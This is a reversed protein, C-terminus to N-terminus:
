ESQKPQPQAPSHGRSGEKVETTGDVDEGRSGNEERIFRRDEADLMRSLGLATHDEPVPWLFCGHRLYHEIQRVSQEAKRVVAEQTNFANHPTLIVEPRRALEGLARGAPAGRRLAVGLDPEHEFVDLAVGGLRGAALAALLDAAPAHEGRAVNVFLAGPRTQQWRAPNFYGHNLPTLSMCCVIVDAQALGHEVDVLEVDVAPKVLDVGLVRMGLGRGIRVVEGGIHGVGVVLLTKHECECGTLGDRQFTAFQRTQQLLKRGLAMWLLAAQEAVARAGYLPLYGCPFQPQRIHRRYACVHEYGTSRTLLGTMSGAWSLPLKSQTRISILRAPAQPTSPYEQITKETFGASFSEPLLRRLEVSEEAFAEFFIIDNRM